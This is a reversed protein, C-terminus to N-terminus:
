SETYFQLQKLSPSDPDLGCDAPNMCRNADILAKISSEQADIDGNKIIQQHVIEEIKTM